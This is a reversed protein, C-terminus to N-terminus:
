FFSSPHFLENLSTDFSLYFNSFDLNSLKDKVARLESDSIEGLFKLTLHINEPETFKGRILGLKDIEKQILMLEKKIEEPFEVSIFIRM